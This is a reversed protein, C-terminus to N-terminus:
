PQGFPRECEPRGGVLNKEQEKKKVFVVFMAVLTVLTDSVRACVCLGGV